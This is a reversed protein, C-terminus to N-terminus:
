LAASKGTREAKTQAKKEAKIAREKTKQSQRRGEIWKQKNKELTKAEQFM